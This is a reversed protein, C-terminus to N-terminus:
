GVIRIEGLGRDYYYVSDSLIDEEKMIEASGNVWRVTEKMHNIDMKGEDKLLILEHVSSPLIYLNRGFGGAIGRLVDKRCMVRAGFMRHENTAVYMNKGPIGNECIEEGLEESLSRIIEEM